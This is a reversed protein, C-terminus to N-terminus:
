ELWLADMLYFLFFFHLATGLNRRKAEPRKLKSSRVWALLVAPWEMVIEWGKGKARFPLRVVAAAAALQERM